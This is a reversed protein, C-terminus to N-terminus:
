DNKKFKQSTRNLFTREGRTLAGMGERSIKELIRDLEVKNQAKGEELKVERKREWTARLILFSETYRFWLFGTLLGGLHAGHAVSDGLSPKVVQLISFVLFALLLYKLKIPFVGMLHVVAEPMFRYLAYMTGYLAGSFGLILGIPGPLILNLLYSLAAAGVGCTLTYRVFNRTGFHDEVVPAFFFFGLLNFFLHFGDGHFFMYTFAQWVWPVSTNLLLYHTAFMEVQPVICLVYVALNAVLFFITGKGLRNAPTFSEGGYSSNGYNL